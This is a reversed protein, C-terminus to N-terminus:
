RSIFMTPYFKRILLKSQRFLQSCIEFKLYNKVFLKLLSKSAIREKYGLESIVYEKQKETVHEQPICFLNYASIGVSYDLYTSQIPANPENGDNVELPADGVLFYPIDMEIAYFLSSGVENSAAFKHNGLLNYFNEVFSSTETEQATVVKFGNNEFSLKVSSYFDYPHLCITFPHFKEDLNKLDNCFKDINYTADLNKCSHAPFVITGIANKNKRINHMQRYLVFPAGIIEVRIESHKKWAEARRRSFVLMLKKKTKLDTPLPESLKTWGHEMHCPLSLFKPFGCYEKVINDFGYEKM